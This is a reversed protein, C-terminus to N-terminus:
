KKYLDQTWKTISREAAARGETNGSEEEEEQEEEEAWEVTRKPRGVVGPSIPIPRHPPLPPPM